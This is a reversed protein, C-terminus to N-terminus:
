LSGVRLSNSCRASRALLVKAAALAVYSTVLASNTCDPNAIMGLTVALADLVRARLEVLPTVGPVLTKFEVYVM